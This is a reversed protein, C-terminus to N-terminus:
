SRRQGVIVPRAARGASDVGSREKLIQCISIQTSLNKEMSLKKQTSLNKNQSIM